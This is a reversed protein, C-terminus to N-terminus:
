TVLDETYPRYSLINENDTNTLAQGTSNIVLPKFPSPPLLVNKLQIFQQTNVLRVPLVLDAPRAPTTSSDGDEYQTGDAATLFYLSVFPSGTPAVACRVKLQVLALPFRNAAGTPDVENGLVRAANALNKLTPASAAGAILTAFTGLASWKIPNTAM